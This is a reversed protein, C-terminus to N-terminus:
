LAVTRVQNRGNEKAEYLAKDAAKLLAEPSVDTRPVTAAVGISVTVTEAVTSYPHEIGLAEIEASMIRAVEAAGALDTDPMLAVFEEGGYRAALDGARRMSNELTQAILRLCEDGSVHGFKDNYAKFLDVDIIALSVPTGSRAARMWEKDLTEDFRRRNALCTLGDVCALEELLDSKRKLALHNRVRVRVISPRVPKTIYDIAGLELGKTEDDMDSLSTLFVVPIDKTKEDSKLRRCVEYGDVDPMVIDLLILDPPQASGAFQLAGLGNLAVRLEYLHGLTQVLVEVNEPQDDVILIIPKQPKKVMVVKDFNFTSDVRWRKLHAFHM